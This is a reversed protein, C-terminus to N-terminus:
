DRAEGSQHPTAPSSPDAGDHTAVTLRGRPALKDLMEQTRGPAATPRFIEEALQRELDARNGTIVTFSM